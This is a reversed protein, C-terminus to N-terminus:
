SLCHNRISRNYCPTTTIAMINGSFIMVEASTGSPVFISRISFFRLLWIGELLSNNEFISNIRSDTCRLM